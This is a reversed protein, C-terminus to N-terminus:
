QKILRITALPKKSENYISIFYMGAGLGSLNFEHQNPGRFLTVPKRIMWQGNLSSIILEAERIEHGVEVKVTIISRAPNPSSQFLKIM